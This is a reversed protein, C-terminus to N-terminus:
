LFFPQQANLYHKWFEREGLIQVLKKLNLNIPPPPCSHAPGLYYIIQTIDGGHSVPFWGASVVKAGESTAGSREPTM